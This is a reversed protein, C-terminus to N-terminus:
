VTLLVKGFPRGEILYRLSDAAEGLPFTKAVVPKIGGSKLLSVIANWSDTFAAEPQAFLSFSQISSRRWILNTIDITAERGVSYGLTTLSGGEESRQFAELVIAKSREPSSNSM